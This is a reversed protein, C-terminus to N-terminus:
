FRENHQTIRSVKRENEDSSSIEEKISKIITETTKKKNKEDRSLAKKKDATTDLVCLASDSLNESVGGCLLRKEDRKICSCVTTNQVM